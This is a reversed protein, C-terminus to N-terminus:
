ADVRRYRAGFGDDRFVVHKKGENAVAEAVADAKNMEADQEMSLAVDTADLDTRAEPAAKSAACGM